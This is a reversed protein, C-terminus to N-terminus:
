PYREHMKRYWGIDLRCPLFEELFVRDAPSLDLKDLQYRSATDKRVDGSDRFFDSIHQALRLTRVNICLLFGAILLVISLFPLFKKM